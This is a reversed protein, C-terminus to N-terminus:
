FPPLSPPLALSHMGRRQPSSISAALWVTSRNRALPLYFPSRRDAWGRALAASMCLRPTTQYKGLAYEDNCGFTYLKGQQTVVATHM